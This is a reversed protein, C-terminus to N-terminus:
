TSKSLTVRDPFAHSALSRAGKRYTRSFLSKGVEVKVDRSVSAKTQKQSMRVLVTISEKYYVQAEMRGGLLYIRVARAISYEVLLAANLITNQQLSSSRKGQVDGGWADWASSVVVVVINSGNRNPM